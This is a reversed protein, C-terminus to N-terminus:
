SFRHSNGFSNSKEQFEFVKLRSLLSNGMVKGFV